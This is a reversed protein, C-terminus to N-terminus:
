GRASGAERPWREGEFPSLLLRGDDRGASRAGVFHPLPPGAFRPRHPPLRRRGGFPSLIQPRFGGVWQDWVVQLSKERSDIGGGWSVRLIRGMARVPVKTRVPSVPLAASVEGQPSGTGAPRLARSLGATGPASPTLRRQRCQPSAALAKTRGPEGGIPHPRSPSLGPHGASRRSLRRRPANSAGLKLRGWLAEHPASSAGRKGGQATLKDCLRLTLPWVTYCGPTALIFHAEVSSPRLPVGVPRADFRM